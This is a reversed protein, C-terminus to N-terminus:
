WSCCAINHDTSSRDRMLFLSFSPFRFSHLLFSAPIFLFRLLLVSRQRVHSLMAQRPQRHACLTQLDGDIDQKLGLTNAWTQIFSPSPIVVAVM